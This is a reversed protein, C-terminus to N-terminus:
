CYFILLICLLSSTYVGKFLKVFFSTTCLIRSAFLLHCFYVFLLCVFLCFVRQCRLHARKDLLSSYVYVCVCVFHSSIDKIMSLRARSTLSCSLCATVSMYIRQIGRWPIRSCFPQDIVPISHLPMVQVGICFSFNVLYALPM